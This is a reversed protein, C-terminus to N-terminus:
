HAAEKYAKEFKNRQNFVTFSGNSEATLKLYQGQDQDEVNAIFPDPVNHEKDGDIAYHLQWLDELGPAAKVIQWADPSGGKRAGNNMIAVRAHLAHVLAPSGSENLGHHSTLYVDVSGILNTPCMLELEKNWTLDGLDLFRFDGYTFLLGVSRANETADAERKPTSACFPNPQGAGSLPSAIHDGDSTLVRVTVGKLPISDGPKLVMHDSHEARQFTRVYDSYDEKTARADETNPGHDLFTGIKMRSALVPVGGVHDRHYHTIVLYDIQKIRAAKAARLIRDADRGDFGRWGTDILMSQGSPAVILTAQGGEVDVFFIELSRAQSRLPIVALLLAFVCCFSSRFKM